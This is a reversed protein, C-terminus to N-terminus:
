RPERPSSGGKGSYWRSNTMGANKVQVRLENEAGPRLYDSVDVCFGTYGDAESGAFQQNLYVMAHTYIGEFKFIYRKGRDEEPVYFTKVYTYNGGDRYGTNGGNPSGAYPTEEIM